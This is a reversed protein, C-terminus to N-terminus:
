VRAHPKYLRGLSEFIPSAMHTTIVAMIVLIAFLGESIAGRQLGINIIILEMLGQANMLTGMIGFLSPGLLVGVIMEDVVQLQGFKTAIAGVLRCFLLM